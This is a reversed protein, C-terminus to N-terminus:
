EDEESEGDLGVARRMQLVDERLGQIKGAIKKRLIQNETGRMVAMQERIKKKMDEIRDLAQQRNEDGEEEAEDVESDADEDDEEDSSEDEEEATAPTPAAASPSGSTSTIAFNSEDGLLPHLRDLQPPPLRSDDEAEVEDDDEDFMGELKEIDEDAVEEYMPSEITGGHQGNQGAFYDAPTAAETAQEEEEGEEGSESGSEYEGSEEGPENTERPDHDYFKYVSREATKDAELLAQVRREVAEIDDVRTRKTRNFRRKRVWRMPATLGHAYQYTKPDVDPPLPFIRAEDDSACKGLVLLMQCVDISKIWGKRDWSKMGEVVCPLDVLSAAYRQQRVVVVGRRGHADFLRVQIDAGGSARHLGITGDSIAKRVYEADPGPQMRLIFGELIVPDRETEENESDYGQGIPRRPLKGKYKLKIAPVIASSPTQVPLIPKPAAHKITLRRIPEPKKFSHEDDGSSADAEIAKQTRKRKKTSSQPTEDQPTTQSKKFNLKISPNRAVASSPTSGPDQSFASKNTLSIKLKPRQSESMNGPSSDLTVIEPEDRPQPPSVIRTPPSAEVPTIFKIEPDSLIRVSKEPSKNPSVSDESQALLSQSRTKLISRPELEVRSPGPGVISPPLQLVGVPTGNNALVGPLPGLIPTQLLDSSSKPGDNRAGNLGIADEAGAGQRAQPSKSARGVSVDLEDEEGGRTFTWEGASNKRMKIFLKPQPSESSAMVARKRKVM